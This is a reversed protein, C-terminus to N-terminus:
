RLFIAKTEDTAQDLDRLLLDWNVSLGTAAVSPDLSAGELAHADVLRQSVKKDCLYDYLQQAAEPHPCNKIVAVTNPLFLTEPMVPLGVIPAGEQQADAIDDSDALGIAAEGRAVQKVVVSNGDVVFPQNAMLARCWAQWASDGWLQRLALFHTATTGFMPYALALKHAYIKNTVDSWDHPADAPKIFNTNIVMRRTRYGLHTWGNTERFVGRAALQRTRFEENNWFVDCQPHSKEQLLRNVLGVTKVAESDFVAKVTIGTQKEFDKLIPEAYVEDQSTYVVVVRDPQSPRLAAFMVAAIAILVLALMALVNPNNFRNM